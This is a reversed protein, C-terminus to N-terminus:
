SCKPCKDFVQYRKKIAWVSSIFNRWMFVINSFMFVNKIKIKNKKLFFWELNEDFVQYAFEEFAKYDDM